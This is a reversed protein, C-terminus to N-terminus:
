SVYQIANFCMCANEPNHDSLPIIVAIESWVPFLLSHFDADNFRNQILLIVAQVQLVFAQIHGM